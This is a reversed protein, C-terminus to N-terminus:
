SLLVRRMYDINMKLADENNTAGAHGTQEVIFAINYNNDRVFKLMTDVHLVGTGIDVAM